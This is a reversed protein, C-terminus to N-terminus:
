CLGVLVVVLLIEACVLVALIRANEKVMRQGLCVIAARSPGRPHAQRFQM